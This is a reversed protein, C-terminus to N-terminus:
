LRCNDLQFINCKNPKWTIRVDCPMVIIRETNFGLSEVLAAQSDSMKWKIVHNAEHIEIKANIYLFKIHLWVTDAVSFFDSYTQEVTIKDCRSNLVLAM